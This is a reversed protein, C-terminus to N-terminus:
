KYALGALHKSRSFPQDGMRSGNKAHRRAESRPGGHRATQTPETSGALRAAATGFRDTVRANETVNALTGPRDNFHGGTRHASAPTLECEDRASRVRRAPVARSLRSYRQDGHSVVTDVLPAATPRGHM